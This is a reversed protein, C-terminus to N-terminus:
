LFCNSAAAVAFRQSSSCFAVAKAIAKPHPPACSINCVRDSSSLFLYLARVAVRSSRNPSSCRFFAKAVWTLVLICFAPSDRCSNSASTLLSIRRAHESAASDEWPLSAVSVKTFPLRSPSTLFFFLRDSMMQQGLEQAPLPPPM